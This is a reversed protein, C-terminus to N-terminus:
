GWYALLILLDGIGVADDHDLDSPCDKPNACAGWTGLLELLDQIDVDNDGDIDGPTDSAPQFEYTGLDVTSVEDGNGDVVRANGDLDSFIGAPVMDNDGADICPSDAHLRVNEDGSWALGDAGIGDVFMPDDTIISESNHVGSWDQICCHTVPTFQTSPLPAWFQNSEDSIPQGASNGWVITNHLVLIAGPGSIGLGGAFTEATNGVVTCNFMEYGGYVGAVAGGFSASNNIFLCNTFQRSLQKQGGVFVAGGIGDAGKIALARNGSFICRDIEFPGHATAGGSLAENDTLKCQSLIHPQQEFLQTRMVGGGNQHEFSDGTASGGQITLGNLEVEATTNITVVHYVNDGRNTFNPGDDGALDGSLITPNANVDREDLSTEDGAFGGFLAVGDAIEFTATRTDDPDTQVAPKYPGAAVWIVEDNPDAIDAAANLADHLNAFATAWTSGDGGPSAQADVHWINQGGQGQSVALVLLVVACWFVAQRTNM